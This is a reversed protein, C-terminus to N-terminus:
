RSRRVRRAMYYYRAVNFAFQGGRSLIGKSALISARLATLRRMVGVVNGNSERFWRIERQACKGM